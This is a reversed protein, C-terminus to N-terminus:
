GHVVARPSLQDFRRTGARAHTLLQILLPRGDSREREGDPRVPGALIPNAASHASSRPMRTDAAAPTATLLEEYMGATVAAFRIVTFEETRARAGQRLRARAGPDAVLRLIAEALAGPNEKPVLLASMDDAVMDPIGVVFKAIIAKGGADGRPACNPSGRNALEDRHHRVGRPLRGRRLGPRSVRLSEGRRRQCRRSRTGPTASRRRCDRRVLRVLIGILILVAAHLSWLSAQAPPTGLSSNTAGTADLLATTFDFERAVVITAGAVVTLAWCILGPAVRAARAM